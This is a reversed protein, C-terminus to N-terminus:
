LNTWHISYGCRIIGGFNQSPIKMSISFITQKESVRVDFVWVLRYGASEFFKNRDNFEEASIQSHQMEIAINGVLVDARHIKGDHKVIVERNEAPFFSQM